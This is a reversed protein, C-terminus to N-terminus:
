REGVFARLRQEAEKSVHLAKQEFLEGAYGDGTGYRNVCRKIAPQAPGAVDLLMSTVQEVQNDLDSDSVCWEVIGLNQAEVGGILEGTLILRMAQGKGILRPLRQTGGGAPLLGIRVEPFGIRTSAAAIRLDCALALELGGGTVAGTLVALTPMPLQEWAFYANQIRCAFGNLRTFDNTELASVMQKIDGGASFHRGSGRVIVLAPNSGRIEDLVSDFSDLFADDLANVPPRDILLTAVRDQVNLKLM